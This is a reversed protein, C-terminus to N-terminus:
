SQLELERSLKEIMMLRYSETSGNGTEFQLRQLRELDRSAYIADVCAERLKPLPSFRGIHEFYNLLRILSERNIDPDFIFFAILSKAALVAVDSNSSELADLLVVLESKSKATHFTTQSSNTGSTHSLTRALKKM